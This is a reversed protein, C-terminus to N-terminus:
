RLLATGQSVGARARSQQLRFVRAIRLRDALQLGFECSLFGRQLGRPVFLILDEGIPFAVQFPIFLIARITLGFQILEPLFMFLQCATEQAQAPHGHVMHGLRQHVIGIEVFPAGVVLRVTDPKRGLGQLRHCLGLEPFGVQDGISQDHQVTEETGHLTGRAFLRMVSVALAQLVGREALLGTEAVGAGYLLERFVRKGVGVPFGAPTVVVEFIAPAGVRAFKEADRKVPEFGFLPQQDAVHRSVEVIRQRVLQLPPGRRRRCGSPVDAGAGRCASCRTPPAPHTGVPQAMPLPSGIQLAANFSDSNEAM